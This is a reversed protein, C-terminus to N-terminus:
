GIMLLFVSVVPFFCVQKQTLHEIVKNDRTEKEFNETIEPQTLLCQIGSLSLANNEQEMVIASMNGSRPSQISQKPCEEVADMDHEVTKVTEVSTETAVNRSQDVHESSTPEMLVDSAPISRTNINVEM